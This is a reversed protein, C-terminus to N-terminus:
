DKNAHLLELAFRAFPGDDKTFLPMIPELFVPHKKTELNMFWKKYTTGTVWLNCLNFITGIVLITTNIDTCCFHVIDNIQRPHYLFAFYAAKSM